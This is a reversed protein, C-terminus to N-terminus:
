CKHCFIGSRSLLSKYKKLVRQSLFIGVLFLMYIYIVFLIKWLIDQCMKSSKSESEVTETEHKSEEM